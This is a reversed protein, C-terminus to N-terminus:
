RGPDLGSEPGCPVVDALGALALLERLAPPAGRLRLGRDLRGAALALRAVVDVAAVDARLRRADCIIPDADTAALEVLVPRARECLAAADTPEISGGIVLVDDRRELLPRTPPGSQASPEAL